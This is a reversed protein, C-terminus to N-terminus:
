VEDGPIRQVRQLEDELRLRPRQLSVVPVILNLDDIKRNLKNLNEEFRAVAVQWSSKNAPNSQRYGWALQLQNRAIALERRIEKDREIWEPAFGNNKLLGFALEQGPELYPNEDFPLPKGKGPLDDFEGREMAEQIRQEVMAAREKPGTPNKQPAREEPPTQYAELKDYLGELQQLQQRKARKSFSM